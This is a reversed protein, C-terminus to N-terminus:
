RRRILAVAGVALLTLSTPEPIWAAGAFAESSTWPNQFSGYAGGTGQSLDYSYFFGPEDTVLYAVNEGVALGDIDVEGAPYSAVLNIGGAGFVDISYLGSGLPDTDDSTGYFLGDLPNYALGGFDYSPADYSYAITAVGTVPDIQYVAETAINKTGYLWGDAWALGVMSSAQGQYTIEAVISPAGAVPSSWLTTGDNAYITQSVPDAAAGWVAVGSWLPSASGDSPDINYTSVTTDDVGVFLQGSATGAFGLALTLSIIIRM